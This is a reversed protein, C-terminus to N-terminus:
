EVMKPHILQNCHPCHVLGKDRLARWHKKCFPCQFLVADGYVTLWQRSLVLVVSGVSILVIGLITLYALKFEIVPIFDLRQMWIATWFSSFPNQASSIDPWARWITILLLVLGTLCFTLGLAYGSKQKRLIRLALHRM